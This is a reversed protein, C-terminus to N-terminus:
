KLSNAKHISGDDQSLRTNGPESRIDNIHIRPAEYPSWRAFAPDSNKNLYEQASVGWISPKRSALCACLNRWRYSLDPGGFRGM